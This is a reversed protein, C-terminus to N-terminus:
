APRRLRGDSGRRKGSRQLRWGPGVKRRHSQSRHGRSELFRMRLLSVSHTGEELGGVRITLLLKFETELSDADIGTSSEIVPFWRKSIELFEESGRDLNRALQEASVTGTVAMVIPEVLGDFMGGFYKLIDALQVSGEQFASLSNRREANHRGQIFARMLLRSEYRPDDPPILDLWSSDSTSV